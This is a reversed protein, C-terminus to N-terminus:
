SVTTSRRHSLIACQLICLALNVGFALNGRTDQPGIQGRSTRKSKKLWFPDSLYWKSGELIQIPWILEVKSSKSLKARGLALYSKVIQGWCSSIRSIVSFLGLM